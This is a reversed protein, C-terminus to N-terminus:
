WDMFSKTNGWRKYIVYDFMAAFGSLICALLFCIVHIMNYPTILAYNLFVTMMLSSVLMICFVVGVIINRCRVLMSYPPLPRPPNALFVRYRQEKDKKRQKHKQEWGIQVCWARDILSM